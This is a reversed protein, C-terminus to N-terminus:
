EYLNILIYNESTKITQYINEEIIKMNKEKNEVTNDVQLNKLNYYLIFELWNWIWNTDGFTVPVLMYLIKPNKGKERLVPAHGVNGKIQIKKQKGDLVNNKVLSNILLKMRFEQYKKQQYLANGYTFSFTFFIWFLIYIIIKSFYNKNNIAIYVIILSINIGFGYMARSAFLPQTLLPYLGFSALNILILGVVAIFFCIIKNIKSNYIYTLIFIIDVILILKLWLSKFNHFIIEFYKKYNSFLISFIEQTNPINNSVYEDVPVMIFFKFIILGLIYAGSTLICFKIIEKVSKNNQLEILSYMIVIMPFIGSAAQYTTCMVLTSLVIIVILLYKNKKFFLMPFVSALISLAMYPADFRYSICELFFPCFGIFLISFYETITYKKRDTFVYLIIIGSIALIAIAIIQTLPAIDTLKGQMHLYKSLFNSTFRSFNEWGRYGYYSRGIDDIYFFNSKLITSYGLLYIISIIFFPKIFENLNIKFNNIVNDLQEQLKM